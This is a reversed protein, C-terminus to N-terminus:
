RSSAMSREVRSTEGMSRTANGAERNSPIGHTGPPLASDVQHNIGFNTMATMDPQGSDNEMYPIWRRGDPTYEEDMALGDNADFRSFSELAKSAKAHSPDIALARQFCLKAEEVNNQSAFIFAINYHADAESGIAAFQAFADQTRGLHGLVLGLNNRYRANEPDLQVGKALASESKNLDGALYFSFGLDNFLEANRPQIQIARLYLAQAEPHRRQKDAVVALRHLPEAREPFQRLLEEYVERAKDYQATREMGMGKALGAALANGSNADPTVVDHKGPLKNKQWPFISSGGGSKGTFNACGQMAFVLALLLLHYTVFWFSRSSM